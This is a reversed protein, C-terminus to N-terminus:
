VKRSFISINKAVYKELYKIKYGSESKTYVKLRGMWVSKWIIMM